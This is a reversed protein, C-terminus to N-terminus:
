YGASNLTLAVKAGRSAAASRTHALDRSSTIQLCGHAGILQEMYLHMDDNTYVLQCAM